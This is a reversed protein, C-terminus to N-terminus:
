RQDAEHWLRVLRESIGIDAKSGFASRAAQDQLNLAHLAQRPSPM